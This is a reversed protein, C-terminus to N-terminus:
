ISRAGSCGETRPRPRTGPTSTHPQPHPPAPLSPVCSPHIYKFLEGFTRPDSHPLGHALLMDRMMGLAFTSGSCGESVLMRPRLNYARDRNIHPGIATLLLRLM